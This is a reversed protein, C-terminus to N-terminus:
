VPHGTSNLLLLHVRVKDLAASECLPLSKRLPQSGVLLGVVDGEHLLIALSLCRTELALWFGGYEILGKGTGRRGCVKTTRRDNERDFLSTENRLLLLSLIFVIKDITSGMARASRGM